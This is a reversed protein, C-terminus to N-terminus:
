RGLRGRVMGVLSNLEEIRMRRAAVFFVGFLVAGGAILAAFSGVVGQGLSHGIGYCAAGSLLAAPVSAIGLRAYTRLVRSGDLDGGLRMRLRRWAVGVGIAYALGYAAAMGAVAWRPPLLFYCLASAGANVAAVIVTNYFPTRTDEYAYFARLVVYQVSYPILGLGFAMLMYGMNTAAGTGASGFILTCMPIGLSLFGFAIPVIAVATTRLGQSIDDRVAGADGEAASRSIRPLLAAMLSVTIIAQPLGWILQANAYAAFGTGKVGSDSGAATSLQTVVMAGAQNALVFLVTWKALMAAKGLGHGKWDFRLRIRFGTERLYPIMALAQVVLGLLVGVGLLRQGEPPISTVDMHSNAATGYVWIFMGLTVIIVINNLVPTWMMAGFKGRANLIQGMVVHIGMFFISPLFYRTFTVAVENAAPDSAVPNALMRVLLPAAFMALGTLAALAVMVLTLLRNAFAEGGDEDEKMSRVLQPVFVSNLGGGVTLIYIMTPLQYAVQFSDALFGLGLAAAILASRIFGTLRSVMTGAAMVASSKLLGAARGGKKAPAAPAAEATIAEPEVAGSPGGPDPAAAPAPVPSQAAYGAAPGAPYGVGAYPSGQQPSQGHPQPYQGAPGFGGGPAAAPGPVAPPDMPAHGGSHQQDKFLHAFADPEHYEEGSHTVLDDVGVFQTTRPDEGYPLYQTAGGPEPAPPQAWVNPDPAYPSQAPPAYLPQQDYTGPPPPPHAARDYLAEAVPDQAALDQERYPDQEYADQLYMDAAHQPPVQGPEPPPEPYGSGAAGQGRDGDYPANM